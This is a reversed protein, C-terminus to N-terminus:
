LMGCALGIVYLMELIFAINIFACKYGTSSYLNANELQSIFQITYM